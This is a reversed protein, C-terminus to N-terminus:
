NIWLEQRKAWRKIVNEKRELLILMGMRRLLFWGVKSRLEVQTEVIEMSFHHMQMNICNLREQGGTLSFQIGFGCRSKLFLFDTM